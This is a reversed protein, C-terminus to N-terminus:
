KDTLIKIKNLKKFKEIKSVFKYNRKNESYKLLDDLFECSFDFNKGVFYKNFTFHGLYIRLTGYNVELMESIKKTNFFM